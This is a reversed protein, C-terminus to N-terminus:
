SSKLHTDLALNVLRDANKNENRPVSIYKVPVLLTDELSKINFFYSRLNENKVKYVGSMQRAVLESDVVVNIAEINSLNKSVWELAKLVGTYEAVNNTTIGIYKGEQFVTNNESDTIVYGYAAPGPNGRSGGDSHITIVTQKMNGKSYKEIRSISFFLSM